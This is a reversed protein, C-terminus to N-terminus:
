FLLIYIGGALVFTVPITIIWSIIIGKVSSWRVVSLRKAAGVGLMSSTFTQTTSVPLQFITAGLITSTATIDSAFGNIPEIRFIKMGMKKIIRWGGAFTGLAMVAGTAAVVWMPVSMDSQVGTTLLAFLIIGMSQQAGNTGQAMAHLLTTVKQLNRFHHNVVHPSRSAFILKLVKMLFYGLVLAIIPTLLLGVVIAMFGDWNLQDLGLGFVLSGALGGILAHSTSLPIQAAWTTVSWIITGLMAATLVELGHEVAAPDILNSSIRQAVGTFMLAGIFNMVSAFIIATWPKFTRTSISSAIVNATDRFGNMFVFVLALIVVLEMM